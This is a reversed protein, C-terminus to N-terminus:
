RNCYTPCWGSTPISCTALYWNSEYAYRDTWPNAFKQVEDHFCRVIHWDPYFPDPACPYQIGYYVRCWDMCFYQYIYSTGCTGALAPKAPQVFMGAVLVVSVGLLLLLTVWTVRNASLKM